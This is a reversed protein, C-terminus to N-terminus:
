TFAYRFSFFRGLSCLIPQCVAHSNISQSFSSWRFYCFSQINVIFLLRVSQTSAPPGPMAKGKPNDHQIKVNRHLGVGCPGEKLLDCVKSANISDSPVRSM